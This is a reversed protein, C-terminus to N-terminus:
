LLKDAARRLMSDAIDRGSVNYNGGDIQAKLEAVRDARVEPIGSMAQLAKQIEQGMSSVSVADAGGTPQVSDTGKVAKSAKVGQAALIQQTQENSIRLPVVEKWNGIPAEM